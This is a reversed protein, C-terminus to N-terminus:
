GWVGGQQWKSSFALKTAEDEWELKDWWERSGGTVAKLTSKASQANFPLKRLSGCRHVTIDRLSPFPMARRCISKLKPLSRFFVKELNSFIEAAEEIESSGAFDWAIIEELSECEMVYLFRLRPTYILWTLNELIDCEYINLIQLNRFCNSESRQMREGNEFCIKVERLNPCFSIYLEELHEMRRMTSCSIDLSCLEKCNQILLRTICSQLKPSSSMFKLVHSVSSFLTLGVNTIKELCELEEIILKMDIKSPSFYELNSYMELSSLSSIVGPPIVVYETEM